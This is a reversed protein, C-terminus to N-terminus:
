EEVVCAWILAAVWGVLTWGLLVNLLIIGVIKKKGRAAAIITPLLYLALGLLWVPFMFFPFAFWGDDFHPRMVCGSLFPIALAIPIMPLIRRM